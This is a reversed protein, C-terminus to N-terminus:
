IPKSHVGVKRRKARLKKTAEESGNHDTGLWVDLPVDMNGYNCDFYKHHLQHHFDASDLIKTERNLIKEFGSHTFAPNLAVLVLHVIVIVPDSPIIFHILPSSQYILNEIPHMSIGSWPGTNVNRHHTIHVHKYLFPHHLFRHIFYFHFGRILPFCLIWAFFQIPHDLFPATSVWGNSISTLYLIEYGTWVSVGSAVSWFMNDHVQNNFKFSKNNTAMERKLFKFRDGQMKYVHLYLHLSGAVIFLLATNRLFILLVWDITLHKMTQLSPTLYQHILFGLLVFILFRSISVWRGVMWNFVKELDVPWDFLPNYRIPEEPTYNCIKRGASNESM